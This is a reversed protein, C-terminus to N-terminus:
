HGGLMLHALWVLDQQQVLGYVTDARQLVTSLPHHKSIPTKVQEVGTM